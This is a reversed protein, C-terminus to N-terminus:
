KPDPSYIGNPFLVNECLLSIIDNSIATNDDIKSRYYNAM